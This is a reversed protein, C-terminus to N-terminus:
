YNSPPDSAPFSEDAQEDVLGWDPPPDTMGEPGAERIHRSAEKDGAPRPRPVAEVPRSMAHFAYGFGFAVLLPLYRSLTM